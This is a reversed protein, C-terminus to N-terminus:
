YNVKYGNDILRATCGWSMSTSNCGNDGTATAWTATDGANSNIYNIVNFSGYPYLVGDQGLIFRFLDRGVTNPGSPGNVDIIVDAVIEKLSVGRPVVDEDDLALFGNDNERSIMLEAGNKMVLVLYTSCADTASGRGGSNTMGYKVSGDSDKYGSLALYQGLRGALLSKDDDDSTNDVAPLDDWLVSDNLNEVRDKTMASTFANEITSVSAALKAANAQEQSGSTLSPITIAAVVGILGLTILVEALTFGFKRM